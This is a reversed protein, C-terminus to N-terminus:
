GNSGWFLAVFEVQFYTLKNIFLFAKDKKGFSGSPIVQEKASTLWSIVDVFDAVFSPINCKFIASNGKIVYEDPVGVEYSQHVVSLVLCRM